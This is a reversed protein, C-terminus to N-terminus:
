GCIGMCKHGCNLTKDCRKNCPLRYCPTGCNLECKGQHECEWSCKRACVSCPESCSKDCPATTHRCSIMCNSKCFPPCETGEHCYKKCKHGCFLLKGCLNKYKGRKICM